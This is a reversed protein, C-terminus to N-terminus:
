QTMRRLLWGIGLATAVALVPNQSVWSSVQCGTSLDATSIQDPKPNIISPMPTLLTVPAIQRTGSPMRVTFNWTGVTVGGVSWVQSWSGLDAMTFQGTTVFNGAEDTTGMIRSQFVREDPRTERKTVLAQSNIASLHVTWSDGVEPNLPDGRSTSFSFAAGTGFAVSFGLDGGSLGTLSVNGPLMAM